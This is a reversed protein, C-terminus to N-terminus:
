REKGDAMAKAKQGQEQQDQDQDQQQQQQQQSLLKVAHWVVGGDLCCGGKEGGGGGGGGGGVDATFLSFSGQGGKKKSDVIVLAAPVHSRPFGPILSCPYMIYVLCM